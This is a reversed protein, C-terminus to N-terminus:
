RRGRKDLISLTIIARAVLDEHGPSEAFIEAGMGLTLAGQRLVQAKCRLRNGRAPRLLNARVEVTRVSEGQAVATKGAVAAAHDALASLVGSHVCLDRGMHRPQVQLTTESWGDGTDMVEIGLDFIYADEDFRKIATAECEQLIKNMPPHEGRGRREHTTGGPDLAEQEARGSNV